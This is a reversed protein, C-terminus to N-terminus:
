WHQADYWWKADISSVVRRSADKRRGPPASSTASMLASASARRSKGSVCSPSTGCVCPIAGARRASANAPAPSPANSMRSASLSRM